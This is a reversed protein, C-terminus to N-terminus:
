QEVPIAELNKLEEFYATLVADNLEDRFESNIPHAIDRYSGDPNKKSPM